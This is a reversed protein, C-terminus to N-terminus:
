KKKTNKYSLYAIIVLAFTLLIYFVEFATMAKGRESDPVRGM